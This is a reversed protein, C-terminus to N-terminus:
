ILIVNKHRRSRTIGRAKAKIKVMAKCKELIQVKMIPPLTSLLKLITAPLKRKTNNLVVKLSFMCTNM